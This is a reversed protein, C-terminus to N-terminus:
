ANVLLIGKTLPRRGGVLRRDLFLVLNNEFILIIQKNSVNLKTESAYISKVRKPLIYCAEQFVLNNESPSTEETRSDFHLVKEMLSMFSDEIERKLIEIVFVENRNVNKDKKVYSVLVINEEFLTNIKQSFDVHQISTQYITKGTDMMLITIFLTRRDETYTVIGMNKDLFKFLIKGGSLYTSATHKHLNSLKFDIVTKNDHFFNWVLKTRPKSQAGESDIVKFGVIERKNSTILVSNKIQNAPPNVQLKFYKELDTTILTQYDDLIEGQTLEFTLLNSLLVKTKNQGIQSFKLKIAPANHFSEHEASTL